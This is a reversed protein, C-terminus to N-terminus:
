PEGVLRFVPRSPLQDVRSLQQDVSSGGPVGVALDGVVGVASRVKTTARRRSPTPLPTVLVRYPMPLLTQEVLGACAMAGSLM